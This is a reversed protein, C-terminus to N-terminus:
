GGDGSDAEFSGSAQLEEFTRGFATQGPLVHRVCDVCVGTAADYGGWFLIVTNRESDFWPYVTLKMERRGDGLGRRGAEPARREPAEPMLWLRARSAMSKDIVASM